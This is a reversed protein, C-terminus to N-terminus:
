VGAPQIEFRSQDGNWAYATDTGDTLRCSWVCTRGLKNEAALDATMAPTASVTFSGNAGVFNLALVLAGDIDTDYINVTGTVTTFDVGDCLFTWKWSSGETGRAHVVSLTPQASPVLAALAGM